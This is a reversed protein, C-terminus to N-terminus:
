DFVPITDYLSEIGLIRIFSKGVEKEIRKEVSEYTKDFIVYEATDIQNTVECWYEVAVMYARTEVLKLGKKGM